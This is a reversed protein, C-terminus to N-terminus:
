SKGGPLAPAGQVAIRRPRANETKPLTITLEGHEYSARAKDTDVSTPFTFSRSFSAFDRERLHYTKDKEEREDPKREGRITVTNGQVSVDIEEPKWGPLSARLTYTDDKEEVDMPYWGGRVPLWDPRIFSERFLRDMADRLGMAERFPEWRQMAM